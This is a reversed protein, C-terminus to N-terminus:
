HNDDFVVCQQLLCVVHNVCAISTLADCVCLFVVLVM